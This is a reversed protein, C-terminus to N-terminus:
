VSIRYNHRGTKLPEPLPSAGGEASISYSVKAVMDEGKFYDFTVASPARQRWAHQCHRSLWRQTDPHLYYDPREM